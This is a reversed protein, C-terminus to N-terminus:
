WSRIVCHSWERVRTYNQLDKTDLRSVAELLHQMGDYIKKQNQLRLLFKYDKILKARSRQWQSFLIMDLSIDHVLEVKDLGNPMDVIVQHHAQRCSSRFSKMKLDVKM